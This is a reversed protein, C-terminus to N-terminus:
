GVIEFYIKRNEPADPDRCIAKPFCTVGHEKVHCM